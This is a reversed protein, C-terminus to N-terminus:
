KSPFKGVGAFMQVNFSQQFSLGLYGTMTSFNNWFSLKVPRSNCMKEVCGWVDFNIM